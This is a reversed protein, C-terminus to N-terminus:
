PILSINDLTFKKATQWPFSGNYKKDMIVNGREFFDRTVSNPNGDLRYNVTYKYTCDFKPFYKRVATFFKRDAGWQGFWSHGISLAVDRKVSFCSTDVHFVSSNVATSWKGLSECDDNCIYTGDKDVIRRLSYCWDCGERYKHFIDFIHTPEFWNDEDLYCLADANTLFSSAAYVRHGYFGKGVNEDLIVHNVNPYDKTMNLVSEVKDKGDIYIYHKVHKYTQTAVSELCKKLHETGITPTVVAFIAM